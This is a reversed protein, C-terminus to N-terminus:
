IQKKAIGKLLKQKEIYKELEIKNEFTWDIVDTAEPFQFFLKEKAYRLNIGSFWGTNTDGNIKYSLLFNHLEINEM